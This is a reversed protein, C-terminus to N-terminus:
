PNKLFDLETNATPAPKAGAPKVKLSQQLSELQKEALSLRVKLTSNESILTSNQVQATKLQQEIALGKQQFTALQKQAAALDKQLKGRSTLTATTQAKLLQMQQNAQELETKARALDRDKQQLNGIQWIALGSFLAVVAFFSLLIWLQKRQGV